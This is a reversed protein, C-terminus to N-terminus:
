GVVVHVTKSASGRAGHSDVVTVTLTYDHGLLTLPYSHSRSISGENSTTYTTSQGDGWDITVTWPADHDPDNFSAGDLTMSLVSLLVTQDGGATVVPPQNPATCAISFSTSGTGGAPVSASHSTGGSVSCNSPVGNLTVTHSGASLGSFTVNDTAGISQSGGGSVSVTYGSPQGSGSTSTSVTLDGTLAQCIITFSASGTGGAPVTASHSAGGSVSCNSPVGSLTITHSGATLGTFTVSGNADITQSGGGDVSVSYSTPQSSGTTSTNVTLDGTLATCTITFTAPVTQNATVTVTQSPGGAGTVTCNAAVGSLTVTQDGTSIGSFTVTANTGISQSGGGGSVTVTYGDPDPSQGSTSTTVAVSGTPPPATVCSVNFTLPANGNATINASQSVGGSVTCNTPVGSLTVEHSGVSLGSFTATGSPHIAQSTGGTGNVTVTYDSTPLSSGTTTTTVTLSGTLAQCTITFSAAVAGGAPVTVTRSTGNAVTCNAAVDGLRVTHSGAPLTLAITQSNAISQPSGNDVTFTYGNPDPSDGSTSTTVNLTGTLASCTITFSAEVTSGAQVTVMRPNLGSVSCNGPVGNLQVSHNGAAIGNYTVSDSAGISKSSGGDVTVSYANPQNAGSTSTTVALDGTLAACSVAFAATATGGPPVTVTKSAGSTVTCNAAVGALAVTHSGTPIGTLPITANIGIPQPAGGDIAYTYGDTDLNTGTTTASVTLNGTLATCSITFAATAAGGAPVTVTKSAGGSATCNGPVDTLAVVHDGASVGTYTTGPGNAAFTRSSGGDVTVTFNGPANDGTTTASVTLDGTTPPAATIDFAESTAGTLQGASATLHYGTGARNVSLDAFTAVGSAAAVTTTGALSAGSANAALTVTVNAAFSTAVNGLTDLATVQVAPKLVSDVMAGHPQVTFALRAPAAPAVDFAPSTAGRVGTATAVLTYGTGARNISLDAFTAVGHVADVTRTGRLAAGEPHEGLTLTVTGLFTTDVTGTSDVASVRVAPSLPEGATANSPAAFELRAAAPDSGGDQFLKGVQCSVLLGLALVGAGLRLVLRNRLPSSM